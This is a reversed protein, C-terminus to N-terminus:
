WNTCARIRTQRPADYRTAGDSTPLLRDVTGVVRTGVQACDKGAGIMIASINTLGMATTAVQQAATPQADVLLPSVTGAGTEVTMTGAVGPSTVM